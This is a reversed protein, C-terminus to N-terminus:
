FGIPTSWFKDHREENWCDWDKSFVTLVHSGDKDGLKESSDESRCRLRVLSPEWSIDPIYFASPWGEGNGRCGDEQNEARLETALSKMTELWKPQLHFKQIWLFKEPAYQIRQTTNM